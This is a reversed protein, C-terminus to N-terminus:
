EGGKMRGKKLNFLILLIMIRLNELIGELVVRCWLKRDRSVIEGDESDLTGLYGRIVRKCLFRRFYKSFIDMDLVTGFRIFWFGLFFVFFRCKLRVGGIIRNCVFEFDM